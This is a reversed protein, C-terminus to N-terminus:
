PRKLRVLNTTATYLLFNTDVIRCTCGESYTYIMYEYHFMWACVEGWYEEVGDDPEIKSRLHSLFGRGGGWTGKPYLFSWPKQSSSSVWGKKSQVAITELTLAVVDTGTQGIAKVQLDMEVILLTCM